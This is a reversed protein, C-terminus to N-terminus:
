YCKHGEGPHLAPLPTPLLFSPSFHSLPLLFPLLSLPPPFSRSLPPSPPLPAPLLLSSAHPPPPFLLRIMGYSFMRNQHMLLLSGMCTHPIDTCTHMHTDTSAHICTRTFPPLVSRSSLMSKEPTWTSVNTSRVLGGRGQFGDSCLHDCSCISTCCTIYVRRM